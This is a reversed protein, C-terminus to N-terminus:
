GNAHRRFGMNENVLIREVQNHRRVGGIGTGAVSVGTFGCSGADRHIVYLL